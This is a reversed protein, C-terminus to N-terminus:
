DNSGNPISFLRDTITAVVRHRHATRFALFRIPTKPWDKLTIQIGVTSESVKAIESWAVEWTPILASLFGVVPEIRIGERGFQLVALPAQWGWPIQLVSWMVGGVLRDDAKFSGQFIRRRPPNPARAALVCLALFVTILIAGLALDGPM